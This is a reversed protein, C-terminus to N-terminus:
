ANKAEKVLLGYYNRGAMELRIQQIVETVVGIVIILSTGGVANTINLSGCIAIPIVNVCILIVTGISTLRRSISQIYNETDEGARIGPIFAGSRRVNDSVEAANFSIPLYFFAFFVILTIYILLGLGYIPHTNNFWKRQDMMNLFIKSIGSGYGRGAITAILQPISMLASAFIVPLVGSIGVKIPIEGPDALEGSNSLKQSYQVHLPHYGETMYIITIIMLILIVVMVIVSSIAMVTSKGEILTEVMRKFQGPLRYIINTMLLISVGNGISHETLLHSLFIMIGCGLTMFVVILIVGLFDLSSSILGGKIFGVAMCASQIIALVIAIINTIKELAKRGYEGKKQLKSLPKLVNTMLQVIIQASILPTIGLAFMSFNDFSGGTFSSFLNLADTSNTTIWDKFVSTDIGPVPIMSIIRTLIIIFAMWELKRRIEKITIAKIM